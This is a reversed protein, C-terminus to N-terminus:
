LKSNQQVVHTLEHATLEDNGPSKGAGYYVNQGHAFAQAGLERNMQVAKVGTHVRVQSFDTGFRPEMFGRVDSPLPSGDGKTSNLQAEINTRFFDSRAAGGSLAPRMQLPEEEEPVEERQILKTQVAEEEEQLEERQIRKAQIPEEEEPMEERQILKAQVSEEEEPVIERQVVPTITGAIPKTQVEEEEPTMERQVQAPEPMGMVQTAVRDAEQEYQDNAAGVTLKAQIASLPQRNEPPAHSFLDVHSFDHKQGDTPMLEPEPSEASWPRPQIQAQLRDFCESQSSRSLYARTKM